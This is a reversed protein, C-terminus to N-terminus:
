EGSRSTFHLYPLISSILFLFPMYANKYRVLSGFNPTSLPLMVALLLICLIAGTLLPWDTQPKRKIFLLISLFILVTLVLNEARHIWGWTPTEDMISPRFLGAHLAKPVENLVSAWSDDEIVINLQSDKSQQHIARNNEYLTWPIRNIKLYPHIFQTSLSFTALVVLAILWKRNGKINKLILSATLIGGFILSAILLYHKIKLLLIASLLLLLIDLIPLRTSKYFKVFLSILTMTAAFALSDKMIGSSWFVISPLFLFCMAIPYRIGNFLRSLTIVSFWSAIFSIFSLWLSTIWYSGGTTAVLPRLLAVFFHTRPASKLDAPNKNKAFEFFSITDGHGYYEYFILGLIMGAALKLVLGAWFIFAPFDSKLHHFALFSLLGLLAIHVIWHMM